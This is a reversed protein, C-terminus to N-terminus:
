SATYVSHPLRNAMAQGVDVVSFHTKSGCKKVMGMCVVIPTYVYLGLYVEGMMIGRDHGVSEHWDFGM